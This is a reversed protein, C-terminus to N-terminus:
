PIHTAVQAITVWRLAFSIHKKLKRLLVDSPLGLDRM